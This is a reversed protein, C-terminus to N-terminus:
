PLVGAEPLRSELYVLGAGKESVINVVQTLHAYGEYGLAM